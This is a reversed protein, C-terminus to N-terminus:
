RADRMGDFYEVMRAAQPLNRAQDYEAFSAAREMIRPKDDIHVLDGDQIMRIIQKIESLSDCGMHRIADIMRADTEPM